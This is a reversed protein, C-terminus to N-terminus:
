HNDINFFTSLIHIKPFMYARGLKIPTGFTGKSIQKYVTQMSINFIRSLDAASLLDNYDRLAVEFKNNTM